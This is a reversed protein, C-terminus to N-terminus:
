GKAVTQVAQELLDPNLRRSQGEVALLQGM